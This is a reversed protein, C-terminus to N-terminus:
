LKLAQQKSQRAWEEGLNDINRKIVETMLDRQLHKDSCLFEWCVVAEWICSLSFKGLNPCPSVLGQVLLLPDRPQSHLFFEICLVFNSDFTLKDSFAHCKVSLTHDRRLSLSSGRTNM